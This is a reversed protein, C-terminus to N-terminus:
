NAVKPNKLPLWIDSIFFYNHEFFDLMGDYKKVIENISRMGVGHITTDSKTTKLEPNKELVSSSIANKIVINVYGKKPMIEIQIEKHESEKRSAEIANDFINSLLACMDTDEVYTDFKNIHVVTIIKDKKCQLLKMNIVADVVKNGTNIHNYGFDLKNEIIDDIYLMAKEDNSESILAAICQLHNKIDHRIKHMENFQKEYETLQAFYIENQAKDLLLKERELNKDSIRKMLIYTFVNIAILGIGIFLSIPSDSPVGANLNERFIGFGIILTIVFVFSIVLTENFEFSFKTRGKIHLIVRTVEFLVVKAIFITLIRILGRTEILDETSSGSILGILNLSMYSALLATIDLIISVFVKEFITGKLLIYAITFNMIIRVVGLIGEFNMYHNFTLTLITNTFLIIFFDLTKNDARKPNLFRIMFDAYILYEIITASYEIIQWIM